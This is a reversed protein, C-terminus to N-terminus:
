NKECPRYETSHFFGAIKSFHNSNRSKLGSPNQLYMKSKGPNLLDQHLFLKARSSTRALILAHVTFRFM